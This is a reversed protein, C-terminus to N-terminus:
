PLCVQLLARKSEFSGQSQGNEAREVFMTKQNAGSMTVRRGSQARRWGGRSELEPDRIFLRLVPDSRVRQDDLAVYGKGGGGMAWLGGGTVDVEEHPPLGVNHHGQQGLRAPLSTVRTWFEDASVRRLGVGASPVAGRGGGCRKKGLGICSRTAPAGRHGTEADVVRVEEDEGDYYLVSGQAGCPGWRSGKHGPGRPVEVMNWRGPRAGDTGRWELSTQRAAYVKFEELLARLRMETQPTSKKGVLALEARGVSDREGAGMTTVIHNRFSYPVECACARALAEASFKWGEGEMHLQSVWCASIGLGGDSDDQILYEWGGLSVSTRRAAMVGFRGEARGDDGDVTSRSLAHLRATAGKWEDARVELDADLDAVTRCVRVSARVKMLHWAETLDEEDLQEVLHAPHWTLVM